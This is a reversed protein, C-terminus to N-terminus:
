DDSQTEKLAQKFAEIALALFDDRKAKELAEKREKRKSVKKHIRAKREEARVKDAAEKDIQKKLSKMAYEVLKNYASGANEGFYKEAIKKSVCISVGQELSFVDDGCIEARTVTDDKWYIAVSKGDDVNIRKIDPVEHPLVTCEDFLGWVVLDDDHKTIVTKAETPFEPEKGWMEEQIRDLFPDHFTDSDPDYELGELDKLTQYLGEYDECDECDDDDYDESEDSRLLEKLAEGAILLECLEHLDDISFEDDGKHKIYAM